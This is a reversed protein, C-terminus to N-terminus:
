LISKESCLHPHFISFNLSCLWLFCFSIAICQTSVRQYVGTIALSPKQILIVAAKIEKKLQLSYVCFFILYASSFSRSLSFFTSVIACICVHSVCVCVCQLLRNSNLAQIKFLFPGKIKQDLKNMLLNCMWLCIANLSSFYCPSLSSGLHRLLLIPLVSEGGCIWWFLM